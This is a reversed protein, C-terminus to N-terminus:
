GERTRELSKNSPPAGTRHPMALWWTAVAPSALVWVLVLIGATTRFAANSTPRAFLDFLPGGLLFCILGAAAIKLTPAVVLAGAIRGGILSSAFTMGFLVAASVRAVRMTKEPGFEEMYLDFGYIRTAIYVVYTVAVVTSLILANLVRPSM